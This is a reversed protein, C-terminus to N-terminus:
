RREEAIQEVCSFFFFFFFYIIIIYIYIYIYIHFLFVAVTGDHRVKYLLFLYLRMV